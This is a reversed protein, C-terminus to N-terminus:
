SSYVKNLSPLNKDSVSYVKMQLPIPSIIFVLLARSIYFDPISPMKIHPFQPSTTNHHATLASLKPSHVAQQKPVQCHQNHLM